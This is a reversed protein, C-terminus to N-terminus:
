FLVGIFVVYRVRKSIYGTNDCDIREFADAIKEEKIYGLTELTAAIFESYHVM